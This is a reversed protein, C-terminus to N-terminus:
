IDTAVSSPLPASLTETDDDVSETYQLAALESM